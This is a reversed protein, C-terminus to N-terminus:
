WSKYDWWAADHLYLLFSFLRIIGALLGCLMIYMILTHGLLRTLYSRSVDHITNDCHLKPNFFFAVM